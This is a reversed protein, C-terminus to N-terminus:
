TALNVFLSIDCIEVYKGIIVDSCYYYRFFMCQIKASFETLSLM